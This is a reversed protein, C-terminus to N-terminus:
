LLTATLTCLYAGIKWLENAVMTLGKEKAEQSDEKMLKLLHIILGILLVHNPQMQCGM